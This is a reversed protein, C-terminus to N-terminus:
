LCSGLPRTGFDSGTNKLDMEMLLILWAFWGMAYVWSLTIITSDIAVMMFLPPHTRMYVGYIMFPPHHTRLCVGHLAPYPSPVSTAKM